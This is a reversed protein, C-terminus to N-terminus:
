ADGPVIRALRLLQSSIRLGSREAAEPNVEFRIRRGDRFLNIIGGREAFGATFGVTLVSRGESARLGRGVELPDSTGLFLIAIGEIDAPDSVKRVRVSHGGVMRGDVLGDVRSLIRDNQYIGIVLPGPAAETPWEVYQSFRFLFAAVLDAEEGSQAHAGSPVALGLLTAIGLSVFLGARHRAFLPM